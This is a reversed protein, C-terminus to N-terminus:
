AFAPAKPKANTMFVDRVLAVSAPSASKAATATPVEAHEVPDDPVRSGTGDPRTM